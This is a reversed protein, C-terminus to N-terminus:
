FGREEDLVASLLRDREEVLRALRVFAKGELSAVRYITCRFIRAVETPTYIIGDADLGFRLEVITRDLRSLKALLCSDCRRVLALREARGPRMQRSM